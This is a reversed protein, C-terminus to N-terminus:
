HRVWSVWCSIEGVCLLLVFLRGDTGDLRVWIVLCSVYIGGFLELGFLRGDALDLRVWCVWCSIDGGGLECFVARPGGM